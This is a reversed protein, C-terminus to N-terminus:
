DPPFDRGMSDFARYDVAREPDWTDPFMSFVVVDRPPRDPWPCRGRLLAEEVFGLSRPIALSRENDPEVNIEIRSAGCRRLGVDVLVGTSEKAVGQGASDSRVFYGIEFAGTEIRPHLGTGGLQRSDDPTFVGMIYDADSDFKSRMGRLLEVKEDVTQPDDLAWPLRSQLEPLSSDVCDKMAPADRPEYCRIVLRQTEIRYPPTRM